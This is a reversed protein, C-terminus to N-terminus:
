NVKVWRLTLKNLPETRVRSGHAKLMWHEMEETNNFGDERAEREAILSNAGSTLRFGRPAKAVIEAVGLVERQPTRQRYVVQVVEGVQWDKDRRSLRFTTWQPKKLKPWKQIVPLIRM